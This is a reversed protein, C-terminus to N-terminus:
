MKKPWSTVNKYHLNKMVVCVVAQNPRISVHKM